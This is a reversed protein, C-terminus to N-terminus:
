AVAGLLIMVWGYELEIDFIIVLLIVCVGLILGFFLDKTYHGIWYAPLRVGSVIMQNKQNKEREEVVVRIINPAVCIYVVGIAFALM